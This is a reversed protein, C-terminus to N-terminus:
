PICMSNTLRQNNQEDNEYNETNVSSSHIKNCVNQNQPTLNNNTENNKSVYM